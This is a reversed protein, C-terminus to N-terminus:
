SNGDLCIYCFFYIYILFRTLGDPRTLKIGEFFVHYLLFWLLLMIAYDILHVRSLRYLTYWYIYYYLIEFHHKYFM